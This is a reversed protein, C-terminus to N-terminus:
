AKDELMQIYKAYDTIGARKAYEVIHPTSISLLPIKSNDHLTVDRKKLMGFPTHNTLWYTIAGAYFTRGQQPIKMLEIYQNTQTTYVELGLLKQFKGYEPVIRADIEIEEDNMYDSINKGTFTKITQNDPNNLLIRLAELYDKGSMFRDAKLNLIGYHALNSESYRQNCEVKGFYAVFLRLEKSIGFAKGVANAYKQIADFSVKSLSTNITVNEEEKIIPSTIISEINVLDNKKESADVDKNEEEPFKIKPTTYITM